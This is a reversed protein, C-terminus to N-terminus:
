TDPSRWTDSLLSQSIRRVEADHEHKWFFDQKRACSELSVHTQNEGCCNERCPSWSLEDFWVDLCRLNPPNRAAFFITHSSTYRLYLDLHSSSMKEWPSKAKTKAKAKEKEKKATEKEKEKAKKEKDKEKEKEKKAKEKEQDKLKKEKEKEKEKEKKAKEKDKEKMKKAKEKEKEKIKKAKEREKEKDKKAKEKEKEKQKKAKEKEKEKDKKAKAKEKPSQNAKGTGLKRRKGNSCGDSRSPSWVVVHPDVVRPARVAERNMRQRLADAEEFTM